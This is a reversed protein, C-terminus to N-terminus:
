SSLLFAQSKLRHLRDRRRLSGPRRTSRHEGCLQALRKPAIQQPFSLRAITHKTTSWDISKCRGGSLRGFRLLLLLLRERVRGNRCQM